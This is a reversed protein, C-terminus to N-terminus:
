QNQFFSLFIDAGGRPLVKGFNKLEASVYDHQFVRNGKDRTILGILAVDVTSEAALLRNTEIPEEYRHSIEGLLLVSACASQEAPQLFHM